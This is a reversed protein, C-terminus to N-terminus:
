FKIQKRNTLIMLEQTLKIQVSKQFILILRLLFKVVLEIEAYNIM